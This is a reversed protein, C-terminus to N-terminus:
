DAPMAIDSAVVGVVDNPVDHSWLLGSGAVGSVGLAAMAHTVKNCNRRCFRFLINSFNLGALMQADWVIVGIHSRDYEEKNLADVLVKCDTEVVVRTMGWNMAATLGQICAEAQTHVADMPFAMKGAGSGAVVGASDRIVFGWGGRRPNESFAGDTNIKLVETVPREWQDVGNAHTSSGRPKTLYMVFEGAWRRSQNAVELVSRSGDKANRKNRATWWQWMMALIQMRQQEEMHFITMLMDSLGAELSQTTTEGEVTMKKKKTTTDLLMVDGEMELVRKKGELKEEANKKLMPRAQWSFRKFKKRSLEVGTGEQQEAGRLEVGQDVYLNEQMAVENEELGRGEGPGHTGTGMDPIFGRRLPDDIRIRVKIRLYKGIAMGNAGVDAAMFKGVEEGILEGTDRNMGGLPLDFVRIWIPISSFSYESLTKDPDYDEFVLLSKAFSWPEESLARKKGSEQHFTFLFINEGLDKVELGKVPCLIRGLAAEM